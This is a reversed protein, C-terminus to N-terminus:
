DKKFDHKFRFFFSHKVAGDAQENWYRFYIFWSNQYKLLLINSSDVLVGFYAALDKVAFSFRPPIYKSNVTCNYMNNPNTKIENYWLRTYLKKFLTKSSRM